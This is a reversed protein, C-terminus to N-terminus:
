KNGLAGIFLIQSPLRNSNSSPLRLTASPMNILELQYQDSLIFTIEYLTVPAYRRLENRM